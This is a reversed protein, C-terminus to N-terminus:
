LVRLDRRGTGTLPRCDVVPVGSHALLAAEGPDDTLLVASGIGLDRLVHAVVRQGQAAEPTAGAPGPHRRSGAPGGRLVVVVGRGATAVTELATALDGACRCQASGLLDGAPCETHVHVPVGHRGAVEGAVAALHARGSRVEVYTHGQFSGHRNTLPAEWVHQVPSEVRQRYRVVDAVTIVPLHGLAQPPQAGSEPVAAFVAAPVLGALRCLDVAAEPPAPRGLVGDQHVRLPVVHGPRVLDEPRTAPDALARATRARERASIGTTLGGLADVSVAFAERSADDAPMLPIDLAALRDGEVAVCVFGSSHRVVLAMETATVREAALVLQLEGSEPVVVVPEGRRLAALGSSVTDVADECPALLTGTM